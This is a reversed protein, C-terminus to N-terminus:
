LGIPSVLRHIMISCGEFLEYKKFLDDSSATLNKHTRWIGCQDPSLFDHSLNVSTCLKFYTKKIGIASM